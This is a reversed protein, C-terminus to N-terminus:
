PAAVCSHGVQALAVSVDASSVAGNPARTLWPKAANASMQRDYGTGDAAGDLNVDDDYRVGNANAGHGTQAGVYFLIASVDNLSVVGDKARIPGGQRLAPSPVDFFDWPSLPDRDGGVKPDSGVEEGDSCGDEDSDADCPDTGLITEDDLTLGDGDDTCVVFYNVSNESINGAVDVSDVAFTHQGPTTTDIPLGNAVPGDCAVAGSGADLCLYSAALTQGQLYTAGDAPVAFAVGPGINDIPVIAGGSSGDSGAATVVHVGAGTVSFPGTYLQSPGKDVKVTIQVNPPGAVNATADLFWGGNGSTGSVTVSIGSQVPAPLTQHFDGKNTTHAVNGSGDLAYVAYDVADNLLAAGSWQGSTPDLVLDLLVWTDSQEQKYLVMVRKVNDPLDDQVSAVFTVVGGVSAAHTELITPPTTDLSNSYPVFVTLETYRRETGLGSGSGDPIFQAPMFMARQQAGTPDNVTTLSHISAPFTGGSVQEPVSTDSDPKSFVANFGPEDVSELSTVVIGRATEGNAGPPLEFGTIPQVPRGSTAQSQGGIMYYSGTAGLDVEQFVPTLDISVGHFGGIPDTVTPLPPPTPEVTPPVAPTGLRFMPLGYFTTQALVKEDYTQLHVLNSFYDRKAVSLAEGVTTDAAFNEAFLSMLAESYAVVETDGYGYGTNAVYVAARQDAFAEPWDLLRPAQDATPSPALLDAVNLGSHCGMSFIILGDLISPTGPAREINATTYLDSEDGTTNGAGPLLRHHDFHANISALDPIPTGEDFADELDASTWSENILRSSNLPGVQADLGDAVKNAGDDLFDYGTTLATSPDLQGSFQIFQDVQAQIQLPDEVLRGLAVEPLSIQRNLVAIPHFAGYPNDSLVNETVFSGALENNGNIDLVDNTYDRENSIRTLDPVRAFPIVNDGGVIVVNRLDPLNNRYGDVVANIAAVVDNATTPSCPNADWASFATSVAASGDVPLVAGRVGLDARVALASLSSMVDDAASPGYLDGLREKNVIFLTNTTAPLNGPLVGSVGQGPFAFTRPACTPIPPPPSVKVRLVYPDDSAAGNYGAVELTYFGASDLSLAAVSEDSTGRQDSLDGLPLGALNIDQLTVPPPDIDLIDPEADELPISSLKSGTPPRLETSNPLFIALDNDQAQHSLFVSVRAGPAVAALRFFDRDTASSIHSLYLVDPEAIPATAPDDNPEFVEVVNVPAQNTAQLGGFGAATLEISSTRIGLAVGPRAQFEITVQDGPEFGPLEWQLQQGNAAPDDLPSTTINGSRLITLTSTGPEYHAGAALTVALTSPTGGGTNTFMAQYTLLSSPPLDASTLADLPLEEWAYDSRILIAILLDGLTLDGLNVTAGAAVNALEDEGYFFSLFYEVDAPSLGLPTLVDVVTGNGYAGLQGLTADPRVANPIGAADGLTASACAVLTCDVVLDIQDAPISSLLISSLFSSTIGISSLKISSLKTDNVALSDLSISSLKVTALDISSLKISSLKTSGIPSSAVDSGAAAFAAVAQSLTSDETLGLDACDFGESAFYACWTPQGEPLEISSLKVSAIGGQTLTSVPISSLKISSLKLDQVPISSLKLTAIGAATLDISSLKISSLKISSLKVGKVNLELLTADGIDGATHGVDACSSGADELAECWDGAPAPPAISSLKTPGLAVAALSLSRMATAGLDVEELTLAEPSSEDLAPPPPNLDLVDVFEIEQLPVDQLSTGQLVAEWGGERTIPISSLKISSLQISSLKISSLKISSLKISSLLISSLKISSLKSSAPINEQSLASLPVDTLPVAGIGAAVSAQDVTLALNSFSPLITATATATSTPTSTATPTATSTPTATPTPTPTSTRTPTATNTACGSAQAPQPIPDQSFQPLYRRYAPDSSQQFPSGGSYMKISGTVTIPSTTGSLSFLPSTTMTPHDVITFGAPPAPHQSSTLTDFYHYQKIVTGGVNVDIVVLRNDGSGGGGGNLYSASYSWGGACNYAGGAAVNHALATGRPLLAALVAVVALLLMAFLVPAGQLRVEIPKRVNM